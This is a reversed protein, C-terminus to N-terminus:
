LQIRGKPFQPLSATTAPGLVAESRAGILFASTAFAPNCHFSSDYATRVTAGFLEKSHGAVDSFALMGLVRKTLPFGLKAFRLPQGVDATPMPVGLGINDYRGVLQ